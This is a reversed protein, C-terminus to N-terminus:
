ENEKECVIVRKDTIICDLPYDYEGSPVQKVVQFDYALGVTFITNKESLRTLTRDYFGGGFGLRNGKEDCAVLPVVVLTPSMEAAEKTPEFMRFMANQVLSGEGMYQRFLMPTSKEVVCPLVTKYGMELLMELLLTIDVENGMPHYAAVIDKQELPAHAWFREIVAYSKQKRELLSLANRKAFINKRLQQKIDDTSATNHM